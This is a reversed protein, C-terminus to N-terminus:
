ASVWQEIIGPVADLSGAQAHALRLAEAGPTTLDPIQIVRMGASAAAMVGHDSDEIAVLNAPEVGLRQAAELYIDPAPKGNEIEDGTVMTDFRERLDVACLSVHTRQRDSSTAIAYTLSRSAVFHFVDDLGPKRNLAGEELSKEWLAPWSEHFDDIPFGPGLAETLRRYSVTENLGILSRQLDDPIEYGMERATTQWAHQYVPESDILVGDMDFVIGKVQFRSVPLSDLEQTITNADDNASMRVNDARPQM